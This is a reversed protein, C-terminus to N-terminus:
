KEVLEYGFSDAIEELADEFDGDPSGETAYDLLLGIAYEYDNRVSLRDETISSLFELLWNKDKVDFDVTITLNDM